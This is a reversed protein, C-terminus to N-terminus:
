SQLVRGVAVTPLSLFTCSSALKTLADALCDRDATFLLSDGPLFVGILLGTEAFLVGFIGIIGFSDILSRSDLPNLALLMHPV